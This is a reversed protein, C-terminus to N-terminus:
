KIKYFYHFKKKADGGFAQQSRMECNIVYANQNSLAKGVLRMAGKKIQLMREARAPGQVCGTYCANMDNNRTSVVACASQVEKRGSETYLLASRTLELM